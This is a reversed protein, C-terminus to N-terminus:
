RCRKLAALIDTVGAHTQKEVPTEIVCIPTSHIKDEALYRIFVSLTPMVDYSRFSVGKKKLFIELAEKDRIKRQAAEILISRIRFASALSRKERVVYLYYKVYLRTEPHIPTDVFTLQIAKKRILEALLPEVQKELAQCPECYYDAYLRVKIPGNGFTPVENTEAAYVPTTSGSFSFLFFFLGAVAFLLLLVKKGRRFHLAFLLLVVGSFALCYPCYVGTMTQYGVLFVEGGLGFSLLLLNWATKKLLGLILILGMYVLGWYKLDVGFVSGQLYRCAGGCNTYYLVVAVGILALLCTLPRQYRRIM